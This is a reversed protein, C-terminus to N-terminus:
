KKGTKKKANAKDIEEQTIKLNPLENVIKLVEKQDLQIAYIQPEWVVHLKRGDPLNFNHLRNDDYFVISGVPLKKKNPSLIVQGKWTDDYQKLPLIIVNQGYAVINM